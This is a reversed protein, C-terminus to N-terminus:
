GCSKVDGPMGAPKGTPMPAPAAGAMEEPGAMPKPNGTPKPHPLMAHPDMAMGGPGSGKWNGTLPAAKM